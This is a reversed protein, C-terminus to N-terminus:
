PKQLRDIDVLGDPRIGPCPLDARQSWTVLSGWGRCRYMCVKGKGGSYQAGIFVCGKKPTPQDELPEVIPDCSTADTIPDSRDKYHEYAIYGVVAVAAVGLIIWGVPGMSVLPLAIAASTESPVTDVNVRLL